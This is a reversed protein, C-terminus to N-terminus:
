PCVPSGVTDVTIPGGGTYYVRVVVCAAPTYSYCIGIIGPANVVCDAQAAPATVLLGCAALATAILGTVFRRMFTTM